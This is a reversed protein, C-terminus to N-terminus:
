KNVRHIKSAQNVMPLATQLQPSHQLPDQLRRAPM